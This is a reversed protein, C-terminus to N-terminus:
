KILLLLVIMVIVIAVILAIAILYMMDARLVQTEGEVRPIVQTNCTV